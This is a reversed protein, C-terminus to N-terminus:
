RSAPRIKSKAAEYMRQRKEFGEVGAGDPMGTVVVQTTIRALRERTHEYRNPAYSNIIPVLTLGRPLFKRAIKYSRAMHDKDTVFALADAGLEKLIHASNAFNQMTNTSNSEREIRSPLMTAPVHGLVYDYMADAEAPVTETAKGGSLILTPIRAGQWLANTVVEIRELGRQYLSGDELVGAGLVLVPVDNPIVSTATFERM